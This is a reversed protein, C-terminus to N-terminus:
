LKTIRVTGRRGHPRVAPEADNLALRVDTAHVFECGDCRLNFNRAKDDGQDLWWRVPLFEGPHLLLKCDMVDTSDNTCGSSVM